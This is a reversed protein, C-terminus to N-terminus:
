SKEKPAFMQRALHMCEAVEPDSEDLSLWAHPWREKLADEIAIMVPVPHDADVNVTINLYM